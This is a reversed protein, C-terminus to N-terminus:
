KATSHATIVMAMGLSTSTSRETLTTGNVCYSAPSGGSTYTLTGGSATYGDTQTGLSLQQNLTCHCNSGSLVCTGTISPDSSSLGSQIASCIASTVAVTSGAMASLCAQTYVATYIGTLTIDSTETSATYSITGSADLSASEFITQCAPPQSSLQGNLTGVLDGEVCVSDVQWVKVIDGGCSTFSACSAGGQSSTSSDDCGSLLALTLSLGFGAFIRAMTMTAHHWRDTPFLLGSTFRAMRKPDRMYAHISWEELSAGLTVDWLEGRIEWARPLVDSRRRGRRYLCLCSV